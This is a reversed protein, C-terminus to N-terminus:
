SAQEHAIIETNDLEVFSYKDFLQTIQKTHKQFLIFLDKNKINGTSVLLLKEPSRNIFHSDVFDNDKTIVIREENACIERIQSDTTKEKGPLDDTHKVDHGETTLINKLGFPLQADILFKM